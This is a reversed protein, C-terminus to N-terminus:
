SYSLLVPKANVSKGMLNYFRSDIKLKYRKLLNPTYTILVKRAISWASLTNMNHEYQGVSARALPLSLM